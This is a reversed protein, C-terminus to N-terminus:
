KLSVMHKLDGYVHHGRRLQEHRAQRVPGTVLEILVAVAAIAIFITRLRFQLRKM